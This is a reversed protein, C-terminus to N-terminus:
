SELARIKQGIEIQSVIKIISKHDIWKVDHNKKMIIKGHCEILAYTPRDISWKRWSIYNYAM